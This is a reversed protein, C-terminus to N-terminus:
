GAQVVCAVMMRTDPATIITQIIGPYGAMGSDVGMSALTGPGGGGAALPLSVLIFGAALLGACRPFVMPHQVPSGVGPGDRLCNLRLPRARTQTSKSPTSACRLPSSLM